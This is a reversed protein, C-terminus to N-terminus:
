EPKETAPAEKEPPRPFFEDRVERDFQLVAILYGWFLLEFVKQVRDFQMLREWDLDVMDTAWRSVWSGLDTVQTSALLGFVAGIVTLWGVVLLLVRAWNRRRLLQGFVLLAVALIAAAVALSFFALYGASGGRLPYGDVVIPKLFHFAVIAGALSKLVYYAVFIGRLRYLKVSPSNM